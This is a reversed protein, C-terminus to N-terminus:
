LGLIPKILPIRRLEPFMYDVDLAARNFRLIALSVVCVLILSIILNPDLFEQVLYLIVAGIVISAYTRLYKWQFLDIGTGLLLGAHNLLNYIVLIICTAAAAGTAGYRPILLYYLLLGIFVTLIDIAVIFKVKGYVRLTFTNFGLAANFYNGLSLLALIIGSEIYREGFLLVTIPKAFSFTIVFVPFSIVAIWIATRWYLDNLGQRDQRAFLRGAMATYLFKFSQYVILILGAVPVVARYEAVGIQNYFKGLLIVVISNKLMMVLDSSLLPFSFRFIERAPMQISSLNFHRLLGVERFIRFLIGIYVATGIISALLYGTALFYVNSHFLIVLLVAVLKLGPGLIHRRFFIARPRVLVAVIGEFVANIGDLPAIAILILLLSISLPDSNLSHVLVGRFTLLLLMISLGIGLIASLVMLITGFMKRFDKQEYYIPVYRDIAKDLGILAITTGISIVSLAYAFAGYDAKSLYRVIIIQAAFNVGMSIMRGILLLASGRIHKKTTEAPEVVAVDLNDITTPDM